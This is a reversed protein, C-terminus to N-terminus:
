GGKGLKRCVAALTEPEDPTLVSMDAVITEVHPTSNEGGAGAGNRHDFRSRRASRAIPNLMVTDNLAEFRGFL